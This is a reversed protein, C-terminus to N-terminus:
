TVLRSIHLLIRLETGDRWIEQKVVSAESNTILEFANSLFDRLVPGNSVLCSGTRALEFRAPEINSASLVFSQGLMSQFHKRVTQDAGTGLYIYLALLQGKGGPSTIVIRDISFAPLLSEVATAAQVAKEAHFPGLAMLIVRDCGYMITSVAAQGYEAWDLGGMPVIQLMLQLSRSHFSSRRPQPGSMDGFQQITQVTKLVWNMFGVSERRVENNPTPNRTRVDMLYPIVLGRVNARRHLEDLKDYWGATKPRSQCFKEFEERVLRAVKPKIEMASNYLLLFELAYVVDLPLYEKIDQFQDRLSHLSSQMLLSDADIKVQVIDYRTRRPDVRIQTIQPPDIFRAEITQNEFGGMGRAAVKIIKQVDNQLRNRTWWNQVKRWVAALGKWIVAVKDLQSLLTSTLLVSLLCSYAIPHRLYAVLQQM